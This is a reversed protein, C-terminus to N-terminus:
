RDISRSERILDKLKDMAWRKSAAVTMKNPPFWCEEVGKIHRALYYGDWGSNSKTARHIKWSNLYNIFLQNLNTSM